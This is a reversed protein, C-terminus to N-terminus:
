RDRRSRLQTLGVVREIFQPSRRFRAAIDEFPEALAGFGPHPRSIPGTL